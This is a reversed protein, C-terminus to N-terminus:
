AASLNAIEDDISTQLGPIYTKKAVLLGGKVGPYILRLM